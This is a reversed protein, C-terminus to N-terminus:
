KTSEKGRGTVIAFKKSFKSELSKVLKQKLLVIDNEILGIKFQSKQHFIKKYLKQGYFM